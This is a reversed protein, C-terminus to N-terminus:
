RAKQTTDSSAASAADAPPDNKYTQTLKGDRFTKTEAVGRTVAYTHFGDPPM